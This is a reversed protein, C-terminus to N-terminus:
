ILTFQRVIMKREPHLVAGVKVFSTNKGAQIAISVDVVPVFKRPPYLFIAVM